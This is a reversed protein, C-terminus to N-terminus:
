WVVTGFTLPISLGAVPVLLLYWLLDLIKFNGDKISKCVTPLYLNLCQFGGTMWRIRQQFSSIFTVPQEDFFVANKAFVVKAGETIKQISFEVDETITRTKWGKDGLVSLKFGFGTGSAISSLGMNQRSLHYTRALILWYISNVESVWSDHINKSSRYGIAIDGSTCLAKNMETLFNASVLNDADFVCIADFENHYELNIKKMCFNLAFGKAQKRKDFREFVIAGHEKAVAATNDTCNDAVVICKYKEQDYDQNKLSELLQAIVTEENRACIVVGFRHIKNDIIKLPKKPLFGAIQSILLWIFIPMTFVVILIWLWKLIQFFIEM